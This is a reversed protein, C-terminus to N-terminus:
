FPIDSDWMDQQPQQAPQQYQQQQMPQQQTQQPMPQQAQYGGQQIPQVGQFYGQQSQRPPLEIENVTVDIKSRRQGDKEWSSYHLKGDV